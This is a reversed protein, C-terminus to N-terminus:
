LTGDQPTKSAKHGTPTGDQANKQLRVLIDVMAIM